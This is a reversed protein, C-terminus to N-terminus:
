KSAPGKENRHKWDFRMQGIAEVAEQACVFLFFCFAGQISIFMAWGFLTVQYYTMIPRVCLYDFILVGMVTVLIQDGKKM